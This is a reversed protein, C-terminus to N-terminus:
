FYRLECLRTYSGNRLDTSKATKTTARSPNSVIADEGELRLKNERSQEKKSTEM